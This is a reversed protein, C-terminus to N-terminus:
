SSQTLKKLLIAIDHMNSLNRFVGRLRQNLVQLWFRGRKKIVLCIIVLNNTLSLSPKINPKQNNVIKAFLKVMSTQCPRLYAETYPYQLISLTFNKSTQRGCIKGPGNKFIKVWINKGM